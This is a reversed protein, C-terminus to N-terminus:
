AQKLSKKARAIRAGVPRKAGRGAVTSRTCCPYVSKGFKKIQLKVEFHRYEVIKTLEGPAGINALKDFGVHSICKTEDITLPRECILVRCHRLYCYRLNGM